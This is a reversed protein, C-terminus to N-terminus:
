FKQKVARAAKPNYPSVIHLDLTTKCAGGYMSASWTTVLRQRFGNPERAITTSTHYFQEKERSSGRRTRLQMIRWPTLAIGSFQRAGLGCATSTSRTPSRAATRCSSRRSAGNIRPRIRRSPAIRPSTSTRPPLTAHTWRRPLRPSFHTGPALKRWWPLRPLTPPALHAHSLRTSRRLPM